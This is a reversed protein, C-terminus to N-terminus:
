QISNLAATITSKRYDPRDTWKPRKMIPHDILIQEIEDFTMGAVALDRCIAFDCASLDIGDSNEQPKARREPRETSKTSSAPFIEQYVATLEGQRDEIPRPTGSLHDASVTMYFGYPKIEIRRGAYNTKTNMRPREVQGRVVIHLGKKGISVETYSNLRQVIDSAFNSLEGTEPDRCDDLDVYTLGFTRLFSFALGHRCTFHEITALVDDLNALCDPDTHNCKGTQPDKRLTKPVKNGVWYLWGRLCKMDEPIKTLDYTAEM